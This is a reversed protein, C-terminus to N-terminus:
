QRKRNRKKDNNTSEEMLIFLVKDTLRLSKRLEEVQDHLRNYDSMLEILLIFTLISLCLAAFIAIAFIM